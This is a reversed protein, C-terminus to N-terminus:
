IAGYGCDLRLDFPPSAPRAPNRRRQCHSLDRQQSGTPFAARDVYGGGYGRLEFRSIDLTDDASLAYKSWLKLRTQTTWLLKPPMRTFNSKVRSRFLKTKTISKRRPQFFHGPMPSSLWKLLKASIRM